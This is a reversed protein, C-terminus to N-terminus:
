APQSLLSPLSQDAAIQADTTLREATPLIDEPLWSLYRDLHDEM